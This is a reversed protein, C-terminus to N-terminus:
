KAKSTLVNKRAKNQDVRLMLAQPKTMANQAVLGIILSLVSLITFTTM